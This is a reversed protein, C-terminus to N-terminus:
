IYNWLNLETLLKVTKEPNYSLAKNIKEAISRDSAINISEPNKKIWEKMEPDLDFDLKAALYIARVVRNKNNTLTIEPSLCTRIIKNKIDEFGMKTPDIIEKLDFTMLLSNCTFDRSYIEKQMPTPTKIGKKILIKDIDPTNFNSSFDVKINGVHVSNHGDNMVKSKIHFNTDLLEVLRKALFNVSSDGTTLDLDAILDLKGLLKDRPTGGCIFPVSTGEKKHVTHILKLLDKLKM